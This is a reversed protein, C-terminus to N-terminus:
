IGTSGFGNNGRDKEEIKYIKRLEEYYAEEKIKTYRRARSLIMKSKPVPGDFAIYLMKEPKVVENVFELTKETIYDAVAQERKAVSLKELKEYTIQKFFFRFHHHIFANYDMFFCQHKFNPDWFHTNKYKKLINIYFRPIGM